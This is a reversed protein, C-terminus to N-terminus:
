DIYRCGIRREGCVITGYETKMKRGGRNSGTNAVTGASPRSKKKSLTNKKTIGESPVSPQKVAAKKTKTEPTVSKTAKKQKSQVSKSKQPTAPQQSVSKETAAPPLPAEDVLEKEVPQLKQLAVRALDVYFNNRVEGHKALFAEWAEQTGYEKALQFDGLIVDAPAIAPTVPIVSQPPEKVPERLFIESSSTSGYTYPEQEGDTSALVEDRVIRFLRNVEVGPKDLNALLAKTYPSHKGTGDAATTGEKASFSVLSGVSPEVKSLGRSISRNATKVKMSSVFPNNRCADLM